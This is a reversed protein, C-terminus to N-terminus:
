QELCHLACPMCPSTTCIPSPPWWCSPPLWRWYLLSTGRAHQEVWRYSAFSLISLAVGAVSALLFQPLDLRVVGDIYAAGLGSYHMVTVGLGFLSGGLLMRATSMPQSQLTWIAIGAAALSPLISAATKWVSYSVHTPLQMALMGTFHMCWIGFGLVIATCLWAIRQQSHAAAVQNNRLIYFGIHCSVFAILLSLLVVGLSHPVHTILHSSPVNIHEFVRLGLM